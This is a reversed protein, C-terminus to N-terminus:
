RSSSGLSKWDGRIIGERIEPRVNAARKWNELTSQRVFCISCKAAHDSQFCDLLSRHGQRQCGCYCPQQALIAPEKRAFAYANQVGPEQFRSPELTAPFPRAASVSSFFPPVPERSADHKFAPRRAAMYLLVSAVGLVALGFIVLMILGPVDQPPKKQKRKM